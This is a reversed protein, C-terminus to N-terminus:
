IRTHIFSYPNFLPYNRVVVAISYKGIWAQTMSFQVMNSILNQIEKNEVTVLDGGEIKCKQRAESWPVRGKKDFYKYCMGGLKKWGESCNGLFGPSTVLQINSIQCIFPFKFSCNKVTWLRDFKRLNEEAICYTSTNMMVPKQNNEWFEYDLPTNDSWKLEM